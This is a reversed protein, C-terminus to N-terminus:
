QEDVIQANVLLCPSLVDSFAQKFIHLLLCFLLAAILHRQVDPCSVGRCFVEVLFHAHPCLFPLHFIDQSGPSKDPPVGGLFCLCTLFTASSSEWNPPM